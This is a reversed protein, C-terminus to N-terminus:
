PLFGKHLFSGKDDVSSLIYLGQLPSNMCGCTCGTAAYIRMECTGWLDVITTICIRARLARAGLFMREGNGSSRHGANHLIQKPYSLVLLLKHAVLMKYFANAM